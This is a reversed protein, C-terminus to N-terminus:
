VCRRDDVLMTDRDSGVTNVGRLSIARETSRRHSTHILGCLRLAWGGHVTGAPNLLDPTPHGEFVARGEEVEVLLFGLTKAIPPAPLRGEIMAQMAELGSLGAMEDPKAVGYRTPTEVTMLM